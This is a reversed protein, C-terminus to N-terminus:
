LTLRRALLPSMKVKKFPRPSNCVSCYFRESNNNVNDTNSISGCGDCLIKHSTEVYLAPNPMNNQQNESM